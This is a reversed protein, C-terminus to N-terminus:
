APIRSWRRVPESSLADLSAHRHLASQEVCSSPVHAYFVMPVLKWNRGLKTVKLSHDKVFFDFSAPTPVQSREFSALRPLPCGESCLDSEPL